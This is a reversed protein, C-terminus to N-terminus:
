KLTNLIDRFLVFIKSGAFQVYLEDIANPIQSHELWRPLNEIYRNSRAKGFICTFCQHFVFNLFLNESYHKCYTSNVNKKNNSAM